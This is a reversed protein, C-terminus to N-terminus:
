CVERWSGGPTSFLSTSHRIPSCNDGSRVRRAPVLEKCDGPLGSWTSPLNAEGPVIFSREFDLSISQRPTQPSSYIGRAVGESVALWIRARCTRWFGVFVLFDGFGFDGIPTAFQTSWTQRRSDPRTSSIAKSGCKPIALTAGAWWPSGGLGLFGRNKGPLFVNNTFNRRRRMREAEYQAFLFLLGWARIIVASKLPVDVVSRKISPEQVQRFRGHNRRVVRVVSAVDWASWDAVVRRGLVFDVKL